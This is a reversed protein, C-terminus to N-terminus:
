NDLCEVVDDRREDLPSPRQRGFGPIEADKAVV